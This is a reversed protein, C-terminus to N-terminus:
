KNMKPRTLKKQAELSLFKNNRGIGFYSDTLNHAGDQFEIQKKPFGFLAEIEGKSYSNYCIAILNDLLSVDKTLFFARLYKLKTYMGPDIKQMLLGKQMTYERSTTGKRTHSERIFDGVQVGYKEEFSLGILEDTEKESKTCVLAGKEYPRGGKQSNYEGTKITHELFHQGNYPSIEITEINEGDMFYVAFTKLDRQMKLEFIKRGDVKYEILPHCRCSIGFETDIISDLLFTGSLEEVFNDIKFEINSQWEAFKANNSEADIIGNLEPIDYSANLFGFSSNVAILIKGEKFSVNGVTHNLSNFVMLTSNEDLVEYEELKLDFINLFIRAGCITQELNLFKKEM